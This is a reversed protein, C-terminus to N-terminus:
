LQVLKKMQGQLKQLGGFFELMLHALALRISQEVIVLGKVVVGLSELAASIEDTQEVCSDEIAIGLVGHRTTTSSPPITNRNSGILIRLRLDESLKCVSGVGASGASEVDTWVVWSTLPCRVGESKVSEDGENGVLMSDVDEAIADQGIKADLEGLAIRVALVKGVTGEAGVAVLVFGLRDGPGQADAVGVGTLAVDVVAAPPVLAPEVPDEEGVWGGVAHVRAENIAALIGPMPAKTQVDMGVLAPDLGGLTRTGSKRLVQHEWRPLLHQLLTVCKIAGLLQALEVNYRYWREPIENRDCGGLDAEIINIALTCLRHCHPRPFAIDALLIFPLLILIM